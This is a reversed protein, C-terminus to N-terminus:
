MFMVMNYYIYKNKGIISSIYSCSSYIFFRHLEQYFMQILTDMQFVNRYVAYYVNFQDFPRFGKPFPRSGKSYYDELLNAISMYIKYM